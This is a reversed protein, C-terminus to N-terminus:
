GLSSPFINYEVNCTNIGDFHIHSSQNNDCMVLPYDRFDKSNGCDYYIKTFYFTSINLLTIIQNSYTDYIFITEWYFIHELVYIKAVYGQEM